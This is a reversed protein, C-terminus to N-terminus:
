FMFPEGSIHSEVLIAAMIQFIYTIFICSIRVEENDSEIFDDDSNAGPAPVGFISLRTAASM